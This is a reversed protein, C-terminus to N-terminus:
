IVFNFAILLLMYPRALNSRSRRRASQAAHAASEGSAPSLGMFALSLLVGEVFNTTRKKELGEFSSSPLFYKPCILTSVSALPLVPVNVKEGSCLTPSPCLIVAVTVSGALLVESNEAGQSTFPPTM